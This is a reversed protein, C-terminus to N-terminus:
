NPISIYLNQSYHDTFFLLVREQSLKICFSVSEIRCVREELFLAFVEVIIEMWFSMSRLLFLCLCLAIDVLFACVKVASVWERLREEGEGAVRRKSNEKKGKGDFEQNENGCECEAIM